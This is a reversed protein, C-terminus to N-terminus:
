KQRFHTWLRDFNGVFVYRFKKKSAFMLREHSKGFGLRRIKLFTWYRHFHNNQIPFTNMTQWFKGRFWIQFNKKSAFILTEHSKGLGSLRIISYKWYRYFHYNEIPFTNMTEWFIDRSFMDSIKKKVCVNDNRPKWRARILRIKSFTWYRIFTIIKTPFTNMTQWFIDSSFM